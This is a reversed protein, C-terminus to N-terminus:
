IPFCILVLNFQLDFVFGIIKKMENEQKETEYTAFFIVFYSSFVVFLYNKYTKWETWYVCVLMLNSVSKKREKAAHVHVYSYNLEKWPRTHASM